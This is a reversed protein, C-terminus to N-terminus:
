QQGADLEIEPLITEPRVLIRRHYVSVDVGEVQESIWTINDSERLYDKTYENPGVKCTVALANKLGEAPDVSCFGEITLFFEGTVGNIFTIRREIEFNEAATSLNRSANDAATTCGALTVGVAVAALGLAIVKKSRM